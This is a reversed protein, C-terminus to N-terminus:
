EATAKKADCREKALWYCNAAETHKPNLDWATFFYEAATEYEHNRAAALGFAHYWGALDKICWQALRYQWKEMM